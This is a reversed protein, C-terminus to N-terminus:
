QSGPAGPSPFSGQPSSGGLPDSRGPLSPAYPAQPLPQQAADDPTAVTNAKRAREAAAQDAARKRQQADYDARAKSGFLPAPQELQGTKGCASLSLAALAFVAIIPRAIM